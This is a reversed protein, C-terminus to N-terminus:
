HPPLLQPILQVWMEIFSYHQPHIESILSSSSPRRSTFTHAIMNLWTHTVRSDNMLCSNHLIEDYQTSIEIIYLRWTNLASPLLAVCVVLSLFLLPYDCFQQSPQTRAVYCFKRERKRRESLVVIFNINKGDARKTNSLKLSPILCM